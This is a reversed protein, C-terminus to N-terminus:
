AGERGFSIWERKLEDVSVIAGDALWDALNTLGACGISEGGHNVLIAAKDMDTVFAQAETNQDGHM